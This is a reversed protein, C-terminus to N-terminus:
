KSSSSINIFDFTFDNVTIPQVSFNASILLFSYHLHNFFRMKTNGLDLPIKLNRRSFQVFIIIDFM